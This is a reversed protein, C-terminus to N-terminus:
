VFFLFVFWIVLYPELSLVNNKFVLTNTYTSSVTVFSASFFHFSNATHLWSWSPRACRVTRHGLSALTSGAARSFRHLHVAIFWRVIRHHVPNDPSDDAVFEDTEPFSFPLTALFWRVTRHALPARPWRDAACDAPSVHRSGVTLQACRVTRHALWGRPAVTPHARYPLLDRVLCSCHSDPPASSQGTCWEISPLFHRGYQDGVAGLQRPAIFPVRLRMSSSVLSVLFMRLCRYEANVCDSWLEQSKLVKSNYVGRATNTHESRWKHTHNHQTNSDQTHQEGGNSRHKKQSWWQLPSLSWITSIGRL